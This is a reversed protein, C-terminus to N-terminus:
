NPNNIFGNNNCRYQKGCHYVTLRIDFANIHKAKIDPRIIERYLM